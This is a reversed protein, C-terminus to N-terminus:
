ESVESELWRMCCELEHPCSFESVCDSKCYADACYNMSIIKEAMEETTMNRIYDIRKM